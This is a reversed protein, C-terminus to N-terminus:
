LVNIYNGLKETNNSLDTVSLQKSFSTQGKINAYIVLSSLNLVVVVVVVSFLTMILISSVVNMRKRHILDRM